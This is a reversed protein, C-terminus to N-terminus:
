RLWLQGFLVGWQPNYQFNGVRRSAIDIQKPTYLPAVPAEDVVARDIRAWLRNALYPDSPQLALARGIQRDVRRDCFHPFNFTARCSFVDRLYNSAAPLDATWGFLGAQVRSRPNLVSTKPDDYDVHDSVRKTRARYGLSRLVATVGRAEGRHRKPEWVTVLM